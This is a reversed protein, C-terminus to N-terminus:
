EGATSENIVKGENQMVQRTPFRSKVWITDSAAVFKAMVFLSILVRVCVCSLGATEVLNSAPSRNCTVSKGREIHQLARKWTLLHILWSELKWAVRNQYWPHFIKIDLENICAHLQSKWITHYVYKRGIKLFILYTLQMIVLASQM